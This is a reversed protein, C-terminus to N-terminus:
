YATFCLLYVIMGRRICIDSTTSILQPYLTSTAGLSKGDDWTWRRFVVCKCYIRVLVMIFALAAFISAVAAVAPGKDPPDVFNPLVGPPPKLAPLEELFSEPLNEVIQSVENQAFQAM